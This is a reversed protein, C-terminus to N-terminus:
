NTTIAMCPPIKEFGEVTSILIEYVLLPWRIRPLIGHQYMWAKFKGPLSSEMDQNTAQISAADKLSCDLM